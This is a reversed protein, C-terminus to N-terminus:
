RLLWKVPRGHFGAAAILRKTGGPWLTLQVDAQDAGPEMRLWALPADATARAGAEELVARVRRRTAPELYQMVISHFVVTAVRRAPTALQAALWGAADAAEVLVPVRRAVELAGRLLAVREAQDPWVYSLLTLRDAESGPDLPYLDCAARTAVQCRVDLPPVHKAFAGALRVPSNADGWARDGAEYRYHDWRLNLGASAGLELLRLPLGTERAVLLFGGLLATSRGVENTQVPALMLARLRERHEDLTARFAPWAGDVGPEGGTTPYHRALAPAGGELVIRHVAGMFRLALASDRADTERGALVTWAPGGAEVDAAAHGLLTTYLPSGLRATWAAQERL